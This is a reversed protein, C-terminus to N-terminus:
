PDGPRPPVPRGRRWPLHLVAEAPGRAFRARWLTALAATVVAFRAVSAVAPVVEDRVLLDPAAALVLLHGAYITLALQGAAVLPWTLRPFAGALLLLAGLVAAATATAGVLSLPMESHGTSVVLYRWGTPDEPARLWAVLVESAVYAVAAVVAGGLLLRLRVARARLDRRGLWLGFLLPPAWTIAPYYGTLVLARALRAPETIPAVGGREFWAPEALTFALLVVPAVVTLGLALGLLSRDALRLAAAAILFYLAYYQLIVAVDTPLEQLALGLPFLLAARFLLRLTTARLRPPSRDGALLSVGVGALTVFLVSAKGYPVSYVFSVPGTVPVPYPGVHVMVMGVVALARAADVGRIRRTAVPAPREVLRM